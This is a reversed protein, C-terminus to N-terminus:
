ERALVRITNKRSMFLASILSEIVLVVIVIGYVFLLQWLSVGVGTGKNFLNLFINKVVHWIESLFLAYDAKLIYKVSSYGNIILLIIFLKLLMNKLLSLAYSFTKIVLINSILSNSAGFAKM